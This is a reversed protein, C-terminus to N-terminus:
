IGYLYKARLRELELDEFGEPERSRVSDLAKRAGELARADRASIDTDEYAPFTVASVELVRGISKITRKPHEGELDDWEEDDVSFMFSMGTVDGRAVASHLARADANNETDLSVRIKLGESDPMLQMTSNSNNNRSRALPIRSVDHNVLFRVDKLDAHDLAGKAVVEDFLGSIDAVKGYVIPRGEIVAGRDDDGESRIEFQYARNEWGGAQGGGKATLANKSMSNM